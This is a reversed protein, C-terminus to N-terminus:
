EQNTKFFVRFISHVTYQTSHVTYVTYETRYDVPLVVYMSLLKLYHARKQKRPLKKAWRLKLKTGNQSTKIYM